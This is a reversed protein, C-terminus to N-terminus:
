AIGGILRLALWVLGGATAVKAVGGGTVKAKAPPRGTTAQIEARRDNWRQIVKLWYGYLPRVHDPLQAMAATKEAMAGVAKEVQGGVLIPGLDLQGASIVITLVSIILQINSWLVATRAKGKQWKRFKHQVCAQISRIGSSYGIAMRRELDLADFTGQAPDGVGDAWFARNFTDTYFRPSGVGLGAAAGPVVQGRGCRAYWDKGGPEPWPIRAYVALTAEARLIATAVQEAPVRRDMIMNQTMSHRPLWGRRLLESRPVYLDLQAYLQKGFFDPLPRRPDTVWQDKLQALFDDLSARVAHVEAAVADGPYKQRGEAQYDRTPPKPAPIPMTAGPVGVSAGGTPLTLFLQRQPGLAGAPDPRTQIALGLGSNPNDYQSFPM